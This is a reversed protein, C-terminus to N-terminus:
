RLMVDGLSGGGSDLPRKRTGRTVKGGSKTFDDACNTCLGALLCGFLCVFLYWYSCVGRTSSYCFNCYTYCVSSTKWVSCRLHKGHSELVDHLVVLMIVCHVSGEHCM